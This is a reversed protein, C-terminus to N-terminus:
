NRPKINNSRLLERAFSKIQKERKKLGNKLALPKADQHFVKGDLHGLEHICCRATIGSFRNTKVTGDVNQYRITISEPRSINLELFPFSLCYEPMHIVEDSVELIEPNFMTIYADEAGVVFVRHMLGCQNAAIGFAKHAKLTEILDDSIQKADLSEDSFDFVPMIQKLIKDNEGVLSLIKGEILKATSNQNTDITLIKNM